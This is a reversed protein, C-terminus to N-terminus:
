TKTPGWAKKQAGHKKKQGWPAWGKCFCLFPLWKILFHLNRINKCNELNQKKPTMEPFIFGGPPRVPVFGPNKSVWIEGFLRTQFRIPRNIKLHKFNTTRLELTTASVKRHPELYFLGPISQKSFHPSWQSKKSGRGINLFNINRLNQPVLHRSFFPPHTGSSNGM